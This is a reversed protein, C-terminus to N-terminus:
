LAARFVHFHQEAIASNLVKICYLMCLLDVDLPPVFSLIPSVMWSCPEAIIYAELPPDFLFRAIESGVSDIRLEVPNLHKNGPPPISAAPAAM